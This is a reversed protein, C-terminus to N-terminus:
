ERGGGFADPTAVVKLEPTTWVEHLGDIVGSAGVIRVHGLAKVVEKSAEYRVSDCTLTMKPDESRITVSGKLLLIEKSKDIHSADAEFTSAPKEKRYITGTVVKLDGTSDQKGPGIKMEASKWKVTWLHKRNEPGGYREGTGEGLFITKATPADQKKPKPPVSSPPAPAPSSCGGLAM